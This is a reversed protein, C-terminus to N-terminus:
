SAAPTLAAAIRDLDAGRAEVLRAGERRLAELNRDSADDLDDSAEDLPVQLRVYRGEPLLQELAFDVSDAV